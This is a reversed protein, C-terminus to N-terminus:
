VRKIGYFYLDFAGGYEFCLPFFETEPGGMADVVARITINNYWDNTFPSAVADHDITGHEPRGFAACTFLFLGNPKLVRTVERITRIFFRDHEFCETSIVVDFHNDHFPMQSGPGYVVDVNKGNGIDLGTYRSEWFHHRNGGNIDLSGVDLVDVNIFKHPYLLKIREIFQTAQPHM